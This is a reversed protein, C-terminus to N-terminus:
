VAARPTSLPSMGVGSMALKTGYQAMLQSTDGAAETQLSQVLQNQAQTQEAALNPDIPLPPPSDGTM